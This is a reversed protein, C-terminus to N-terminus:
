CNSLGSRGGVDAAGVGSVAARADAITEDIATVDTADVAAAREAMEVSNEFGVTTEPEVPPPNRILNQLAAIRNRVAMALQQQLGMNDTDNALSIDTMRGAMGAMTDGNMDGMELEEPMGAQSPGFDGADDQPVTQYQQEPVLDSPELDSNFNTTRMPQRDFENMERASLRRVSVHRTQNIQAEPSQMEIEGGQSPGFDGADDQPVPQYEPRNGRWDYGKTQNREMKGLARRASYAGYGTLGAGVIPQVIDAPNVYNGPPTYPPTPTPKPPKPKPPKPDPPKPDPPKPPVPDPPKPPGPKPDPKPPGPKPPSPPTPTPGPKPGPKIPQFQGEKVEKRCHPNRLKSELNPPCKKVEGPRTFNTRHRIPM